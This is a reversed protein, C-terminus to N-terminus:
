WNKKLHQYMPDRKGQIPFDKRLPHGEFDEVNMVRTLNPHNSFQIGFFDYVEREPWNAAAYVGTLSPIALEDNFDQKLIVRVNFANSFLITVLQFRLDRGLYDVATINELMDFQLEADEKLFKVMNLYAEPEIWVALDGFSDETKLVAAEFKLKLKEITKEYNM